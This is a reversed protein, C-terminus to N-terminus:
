NPRGLLKRRAWSKLSMGRYVSAKTGAQETTVSEITPLAFRMREFFRSKTMAKIRRESAWSNWADFLETKGIETGPVDCCEEIFAAMPNTALRWEGAATISSEPHTFSGNERLQRLGDLAWIAIGPIEDRLRIELKPDERGIFSNSFELLLLRRLMANAHDPLDLFENSAITIRTTIKTLDLQDKNKRNISVHDNGVINLLLELGRMVDGNRPTRADGITCLLKGILPQLGFPGSLDSFSTAATQTEGVLATLVNMIVGKGACTPGRMFMMKQMSMDPTMCYGIWERLLQIKAPDDGLSSEMFELWTPCEATPDFGFPLASTTFLDPTPELLVEDARAIFRDLDLIGNEFVVLSTTNPGTANNIWTPIHRSEVLTESSMADSINEILWKTTELPVLSLQGTTPTVKKCSKDQAWQWLPQAFTEKDQPRYKAGDYRYWTGMWRRFTYRDAMTCRDKLYARAITLPRADELVLEAVHEVASEAVATQLADATLGFKVKWARLDKVHEPPMLMKVTKCTNRLCQFAAIMGERGPESGDPKKDNEGIVWVDRSRLLDSLMDMCALNSPRGVAVFGMDMAAAVDSGGEVVVVPNDSAALAASGRIDGEPKLIHLYGFRLPRSSKERICVAAKPDDPNEASLLCGDPKSCVPCVKGADMTRIWNQPGPSFGREGSTHTPNIEYILGHKSGPYMAKWDDKSRLGLGVLEANSDREPIVWLGTSYKTKKFDVIPAYGVGLRRLSDSSVGLHLALWDLVVPYSNSQFFDLLDQLRTSKPM